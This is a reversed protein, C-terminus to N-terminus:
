AVATIMSPVIEFSQGDTEFQTITANGTVTYTAEGVAYVHQM